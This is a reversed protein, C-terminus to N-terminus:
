IYKNIDLLLSTKMEDETKDLFIKFKDWTFYYNEFFKGFKNDIFAIIDLKITSVM